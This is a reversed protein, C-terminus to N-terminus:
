GCSVSATSASRTALRAAAPHDGHSWAQWAHDASALAGTLMRAGVGTRRHAPAVVLHLLEGDLVTM